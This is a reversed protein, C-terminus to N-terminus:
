EMPHLSFWTRRYGDAASSQPNAATAKAALARRISAASCPNSAARARTPSAPFSSPVVRRPGRQRAEPQEPFLKSAQRTPRSILANDRDDGSSQVAARCAAIVKRPDLDFKGPHNRALLHARRVPRCIPPTPPAGLLVPSAGLALASGCGGAQRGAGGLPSLGQHELFGCITAARRSSSAACAASVRVPARVSAPAPASRPLVHVPSGNPAELKTPRDVSIRQGVSPATQNGLSRPDERQASVGHPSRIPPQRPTAAGPPRAREAGLRRSRNRCFTPSRM